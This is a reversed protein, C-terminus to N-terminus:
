GFPRFGLQLERDAALIGVRAQRDAGPQPAPVPACEKDSRDGPLRPPVVGTDLYAAIADDTCAIGSLSGSHTTGNVGEILSATPFRRRVEISGAYPTAADHTENVLLIPVTVNAGTM